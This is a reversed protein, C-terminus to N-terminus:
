QVNIRRREFRSALFKGFKYGLYGAMCGLFGIRIVEATRIEITKAIIINFNEKEM